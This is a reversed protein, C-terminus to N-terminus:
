RRIIRVVRYCGLGLVLGVCDIFVDSVRPLRGDVFFQLVESVAAFIALSPLLRWFREQFYAWRVAFALLAFFAVHGLKSFLGSALARMGLQSVAGDGAFGHILASGIGTELEVKWDVPLLVGIFISAVAAYVLLHPLDWRLQPILPLALWVLAAAWAILGIGRYVVFAERERVERLSPQRVTLTGTAGILQVSVQLERAAKPVRFVQEYRRWPRTGTLDAAVHPVPLMRRQGDLSILALRGKQFFRTGPRINGAEMQASLRLLRFRGPESLSQRLAVDASPADARLLAVGDAVHAKGRGSRTWHAFGEKFEPDRLLEPGVSQYRPFFSFFVVTGVCLALLLFLRCPLSRLAM